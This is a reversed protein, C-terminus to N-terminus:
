VRVTAVFAGIIAGALVEVPTHGLLERVQDQQPLRGEEILDTVIRNLLKAQIGTERRVGTADYMVVLAFVAALAFVASDFGVRFGVGFSLAVVFAAHSSPMGGSEILRALVLKRSSVSSIILKLAQAIVWALLAADLVQNEFMRAIDDM